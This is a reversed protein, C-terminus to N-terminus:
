EPKTETLPGVGQLSVSYTSKEKAPANKSYSAIIAEGSEYETPTGVKVQVKAKTKWATRLAALGQDGVVVMGDLDVSWSLGTVEAESWDGSDKTTTEATESEYNISAGTQGGILTSGITVKIDNGQEYSAM